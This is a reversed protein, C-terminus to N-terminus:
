AATDRPRRVVLAALLPIPWGILLSAVLYVWGSRGKREAIRYVFLAPLVFLVLVGLLGFAHTTTIAVV